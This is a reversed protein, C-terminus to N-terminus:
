VSIGYKIKVRELKELMPAAGAYLFLATAIGHVLDMPLGVMYYSILVSRSLGIGAILASSPNMIGGYIVVASFFGFICLSLRSRSLFGSGFLVGSLFGIIGMAFMQWPTWPGQQFLMNSVLMTVSGVLFGTEGGFAAGSIIVLALVPKFQPLMYFAARGAVGLACLVAIIVIERAQPKRGEFAMFFPLMCELMVLLSIFLYKKNDLFYVGFLVTAPVAAFVAAAAAATSKKLRSKESPEFFGQKKCDSRKWFALAFCILSLILMIYEPKVLDFVSSHFNLFGFSLLLGAALMALGVYGIIRKCLPMKESDSREYLEATNDIIYGGSFDTNIPETNETSGGFAEIVDNVTVAGDVIGSSMRCASTTYFMNGSFFERSEGEAAAAGNFLMVCRDANDACFEIDHSVMIVSTGKLCVAKLIAAFTKKFDADLGKTPEDLLLIEPETLLVKALAAKQQEGGSLDYPHRWSLQSIGCLRMVAEVAKRKEQDSMKKGDFVEFLDEYLTKKVFISQPDQPVAGVTGSFLNKISELNKGKILVKGRYPKRAGTLVSLLTSKGAGNGGTIALLEGKGAKFSIGKLIDEGNKEYRFWIKEAELVTEGASVAKKRVPKQEHTLSYNELWSRGEAVTLPCEGVDSLASWIRVPAPMAAYMGKRKLIDATRRPTDDCIIRGKEMAILRGSLPILEEPRHETIIVTIGLERNIKALMGIFESAAIPDLQSTPEDLILVSPNMILISALNLLQKQGGSLQSVSKEFWNQMGFFAATEATKRRITNNDAGISELGFALEHWVKDTVIQNDPSQGVFGIERSQIDSAVDNLPKGCFLVEGSKLGHPTLVTKFHRLLTSKGCGSPGCITIFEGSSVSFSINELAGSISKPYTFSLDKVKFMEM